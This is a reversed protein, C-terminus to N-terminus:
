NPNALSLQSSKWLVGAWALEDALCEALMSEADERRLFFEIVEQIEDSVLAYFFLASVIVEITRRM